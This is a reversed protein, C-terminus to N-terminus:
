PSILGIRARTSSKYVYFVSKISGCIEINIHAGYKKLLYPNYPVVWRNDVDSDPDSVPCGSPRKYFPYSGDPAFCTEERFDKPFAKSCCNKEKSYCVDNPHGTCRNHVMQQLVLNYLEEDDEKKPM